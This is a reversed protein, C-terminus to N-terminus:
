APQVDVPVATLASTGSLPDLAAPSPLRNVNVGPAATAVRQEIGPLDHGFGHPLSVVGPRVDETIEVTVIVTGSDTSVKASGGDSLGWASADTPHVQLTCLPKQGRLGPLNHMWSNNTRLHRRGVLLPLAPPRDLEGALRELDTVIPEPALEIRGSATVLVDPVRPELPGYDIGHPHTELEALSLGGPRDGFEDGRPGSRLVLDLLREPGRRPAVAALLDEPGRGGTGATPRTALQSALGYAVFDDLGDVDAAAGAGQAIGALRLLIQWEALLHDPLPLPAPTYVAATRIALPQFALDYHSRYRIPPPPLIVHARRTTATVYPDIAVFLDLQGLAADLTPGDPTSLVPNGAFCILARVQGEGPTLIEEALAAAPLEGLIEPHGSVRSSWRGFRQPPRGSRDEHLPPSFMAGGPRDLNGTLVNLVDVLWSAVTGFVTTTTGIRGYVVGRDAAALDRALGRITAPDVDCAAAVREPTFPAVAARVDDVGAVHDALHGLDVLSEDFLTWVMAALLLGDTGPLVAVHQDARAATRSRRPDVVVLRGGRARLDKLRRPLDPVTWLSGNSMMPNGGVVMLWDTRDIDPVPIALPDGFLEACARHKPMQDVTSATAVVRTGLADRLVRGYLQGALTHVTPNGLYLAVSDRGHQQQIAPLREAIYGFAEDWSVDEWGTDTRIRPLTLRDPDHDLEGLAAGKPCVFGRSLVHDDDGRVGVIRDGDIDLVLGCTAECLPCIRLATTTM